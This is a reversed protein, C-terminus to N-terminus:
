SEGKALKGRLAELAAFPKVDKEKLPAAGAPAASKQGLHAQDARPYEPMDLMLAEVAVHGLDIVAGLPEVDDELVDEPTDYAIDSDPLFRLSVDAEIRTKVPELSVVCNQTISAGVTGSVLWGRKGLPSIEGQFRMKRLGRLGLSQRIAEAEAETPTEDFRYATNGRLREVEIPRAFPPNEISDAM